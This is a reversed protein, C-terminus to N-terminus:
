YNWFKMASKYDDFYAGSFYNNACASPNANGGFTIWDKKSKVLDCACIAKKPDRPDVECKQNLCNSWPYKADCHLIKKGQKVSQLPSFTSFIYKINNEIYGKLQDCQKTGISDGHEIDCNCITQNYNDPNPVCKASTCLAYPQNCMIYSSKNYTNFIFFGFLIIGMGIVFSASHFKKKKLFFQSKM